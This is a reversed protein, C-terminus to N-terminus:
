TLFYTNKLVTKREAEIKHKRFCIMVYLRFYMHKVLVARKVFLCHRTEFVFSKRCAEEATFLAQPYWYMHVHLSYIINSIM